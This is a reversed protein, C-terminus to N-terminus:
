NTSPKEVQDIVLVEVPGRASELRLGLQEQLATFISPGNPDSATTGPRLPPTENEDPTWQLVFDYHGKLGTRDLVRRRLTRTLITALAPVTQNTAALRGASPRFRPEKGKNAADTERLKPGNKAIRLQYIPLQRTERHFKLKFRDVLVARLMPIMRTPTDEGEFKGEIEFRDSESWIPGGVIEFAQLGFGYQLLFSLTAGKAQFRGPTTEISIGPRGPPTPKISVVDFTQAFTMLLLAVGLRLWMFAKETKQLNEAQYSTV